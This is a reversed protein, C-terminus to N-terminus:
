IGYTVVHQPLCALLSGVLTGRCRDLTKYNPYFGSVTLDGCPFCVCIWVGSLIWHNDLILVHACQLDTKHHVPPSTLLMGRDRALLAEWHACVSSAGQGQGWPLQM